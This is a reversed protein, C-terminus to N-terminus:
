SRMPWIITIPAITMCVIPNKQIRLTMLISTYRAAHQQRQERKTNTESSTAPRRGPAPASRVAVISRRRSRLSRRRASGSRHFSAPRVLRMADHIGQLRAAGPAATASPSPCAAAAAPSPRSGCCALREGIKKPMRSPKARSTNRSNPTASRRQPWIAAPSRPTRGEAVQQRADDSPRM